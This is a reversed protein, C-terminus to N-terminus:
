AAAASYFDMLVDVGSIGGYHKAVIEVYVGASRLLEACMGYGDYRSAYYESEDETVWVGTVDRWEGDVLERAVNFCSAGREEPTSDGWSKMPTVPINTRLPNSGMRYYALNCSPQQNLFAELAPADSANVFGSLLGRCMYDTSDAPHYTVITFFGRRNLEVVDDEPPDAPPAIDDPSCPVEGSNFAANCACLEDWTTVLRWSELASDRTASYTDTM